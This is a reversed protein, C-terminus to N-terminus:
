YKWGVGLTYKEVDVYAPSDANFDAIKGEIYLGRRLPVKVYFDLETGYDISGEESSFDHYQAKLLVGNLYSWQDGYGKIKYTVDLYFDELGGAPTVLFQDAFGNFKHLTALPTRFAFNGDDSGLSEFGVTTKLGGKSLGLALHYYDAEYSIPNDAYDEQHAYEAYYHLGYGDLIDRKGSLSLGYTASSNAPSDDEFDLLYGYGKLVGLQPLKYAGHIFHSESDWNGNPSDNGFIRNIRDIYGYSVTLGDISTNVVKAADYTQNNQRWGVHGIFRHNDLTIVQRGVKITTDPIGSYALFMQNWETSEVDAVVPFTGKGNITNNFRDDGINRVNEWEVQFMFGYFPATKFGVRSRLTSAKATNPRNAQDVYEYRYREDIYFKGNSIADFLAEGAVAPQATASLASLVAGLALLKTASKM